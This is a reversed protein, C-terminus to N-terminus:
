KVIDLVFLRFISQTPLREINVALVNPRIKNLINKFAMCIRSMVKM